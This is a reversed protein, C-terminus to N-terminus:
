AMVEWGCKKCKKDRYGEGYEILSGCRACKVWEGNNIWEDLVTEPHQWDVFGFLKDAFKQQCNCLEMFDKGTYVNDSLEAVYCPDDPHKKYAEEDKFIVGQGYPERHIIRKGNEYGISGVKIMGTRGNKAIIMMSQGTLVINVKKIRAYGALMLINMYTIIVPVAYKEIIM